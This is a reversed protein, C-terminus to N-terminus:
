IKLLVEELLSKSEDENLIYNAVVKGMESLGSDLFNKLKNVDYIIEGFNDRYNGSLLCKPHAKGEEWKWGILKSIEESSKISRIPMILEMGVEKLIQKYSDLTIDLQNIKLRGDHVEREGSIIRGSLYKAFKIKILHFYLHCGICPSYFGYKENFITMTRGNMIAWIDERNYEMLPYLIKRYGYLNSIREKLKLYNEYIVDRDGIEVGAFSAIPLIHNIDDREFAKIIAAVSDRGSFEGIVTHKSYNNIKFETVAGKIM